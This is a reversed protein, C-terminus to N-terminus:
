DLRRLILHTDRRVADIAAEIAEQADKAREPAEETNKNSRLSESDRAWVEFLREASDPVGGEAIMAIDRVTRALAWGKRRASEGDSEKDHRRDLVVQQFEGLMVLIQISILRQNRNHESVENRWTNYGLGTVAVALSILAVANRRFQEKLSRSKAV